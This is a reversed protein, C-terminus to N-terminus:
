VMLPTCPPAATSCSEILSDHSVPVNEYDPSITYHTSSKSVMRPVLAGLKVSYCMNENELSYASVIKDSQTANRYPMCVYNQLRDCIFKQNRRVIERKIAGTYVWISTASIIAETLKASTLSGNGKSCCAYFVTGQNPKLWWSASAAWYLHICVCSATCCLAFASIFKLRYLLDLVPLWVPSNALSATTVNLDSHLTGFYTSLTCKLCAHFCYRLSVWRYV